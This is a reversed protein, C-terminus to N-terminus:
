GGWLECLPAWEGTVPDRAPLGVRAIEDKARQYDAPNDSRKLDWDEQGEPYAGVIM